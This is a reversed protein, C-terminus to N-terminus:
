GGEPEEGPDKTLKMQAKQDDTLLNQVLKDSELAIVDTLDADDFDCNLYSSRRMDAGRLVTGTFKCNEYISARMDCRSLDANSFDCEEFDNWCMRSESLNTDTFNISKIRSRGFFTRPITLHSFDWNEIGSRFFEFGLVEDYYSPMQHHIYPRGDSHRPMPRYYDDLYNWTAELAKRSRPPQILDITRRLTDFVIDKLNDVDEISAVPVRRSRAKFVNLQMKEAVVERIEELSVSAEEEILLESGNELDEYVASLDRLGHYIWTIKQDGPGIYSDENSKGIEEAEDFADEPSNAHILVYKVNIVSLSEGETKVEMVIEAVYWDSSSLIHSARNMSM